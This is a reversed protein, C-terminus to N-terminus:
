PKIYVNQSNEEIYVYNEESEYGADAIINEIKKPLNEKLKEMMPIFTLQHSRESSIDVGIQVNYGPKLQSNKMHMFTAYTDTKSFSNRGDFTNNYYDYKKQKQIFEETKEIVRQLKTKRKGKACVFEINLETKKLYLKELIM